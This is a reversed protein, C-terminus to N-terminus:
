GEVWELLTTGEHGGCLACRYAERPLIRHRNAELIQARYRLIGEFFHTGRMAHPDFDFLTLPERVHRLTRREEKTKSGESSATYGAADDSTDTVGAAAITAATLLAIIGPIM